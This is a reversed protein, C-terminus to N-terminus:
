VVNEIGADALIERLTVLFKEPLYPTLFVVGRTTADDVLFEIEMFHGNPMADLSGAVGRTRAVIQSRIHEVAAVLRSDTDSVRAYVDPENGDIVKRFTVNYEPM